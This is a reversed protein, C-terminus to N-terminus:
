EANRARDARPPADNMRTAATAPTVRTVQAHGAHTLGLAMLQAVHEDDLSHYVFKGARRSKVLRLRRLVGLHQSVGSEGIGLVAALDSTCLETHLLADVLRARTPAALAEFLRAVRAYAEGAALSARVRAVAAPDVIRAGTPEQV